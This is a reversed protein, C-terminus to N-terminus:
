KSTFDKNRPSFHANLLRELIIKSLATLLASEYIKHQVELDKSLTHVEQLIHLNSKEISIDKHGHPIDLSNYVSLQIGHSSQIIGISKEIYRKHQLSNSDLGCVIKKKNGSLEYWLENTVDCCFPYRTM